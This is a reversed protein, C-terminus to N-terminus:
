PHGGSCESKMGGRFFTRGDDGAWMAKHRKDVSERERERENLLRQIILCQQIIKLSSDDCFFYYNRREIKSKHNGATM